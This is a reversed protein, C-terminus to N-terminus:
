FSEGGVAPNAERVVAVNPNDQRAQADAAAVKAAEENEPNVDVAPVLAFPAEDSAKAAPAATPSAYSPGPQSESQAPVAPDSTNFEAM